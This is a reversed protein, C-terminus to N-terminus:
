PQALFRNLVAELADPVVPKSVHDDMGADLCRQRDDAFAHATMAVIRLRGGNERERARITRTTELGDMGPMQVDMFVVDYNHVEVARVAEAGTAV